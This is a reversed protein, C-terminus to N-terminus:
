QPSPSRVSTPTSYRGEDIDDFGAVAVDDPVRLGAELLVRIARGTQRASCRPRVIV